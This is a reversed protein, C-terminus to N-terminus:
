NFPEPWFHAVIADVVTRQAGANSQVSHRIRGSAANAVTEMQEADAMLQQFANKYDLSLLCRHCQFRNPISGTGNNRRMEARGAM